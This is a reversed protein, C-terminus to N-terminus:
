FSISQTKSVSYTVDTQPVNDFKSFNQSKSNALLLLSSNTAPILTQNALNFIVFHLSAVGLAPNFSSVNVQVSYGDLFHNSLIKTLFLNRFLCTGPPFDGEYNQVGGSLKESAKKTNLISFLPVMILLAGVFAGVIIRRTTRKAIQM